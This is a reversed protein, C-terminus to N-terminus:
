CGGQLVYLLGRYLQRILVWILKKDQSLQKEAGRPAMEATKAEKRNKEGERPRLEGAAIISRNCSGIHISFIWAFVVMIKKGLMFILAIPLGIISGAAVWTLGGNKADNKGCLIWVCFFM